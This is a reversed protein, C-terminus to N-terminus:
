VPKDTLVGQTGARGVGLKDLQDKVRRDSGTYVAEAVGSRTTGAFAATVAVNGRTVNVTAGAAISGAGAGGGAAAAAAFKAVLSPSAPLRTVLIPADTRRGDLGIYPLHVAADDLNNTIAIYGSYLLFQSPYVLAPSDSQLQLCAGGTTYSITQQVFDSVGDFPVATLAPINAVTYSVPTDYHKKITVSYHDTRTHESDNLALFSPTVVLKVRAANYINLLGAGQQAVLDISDTKYPKMSVANSQLVAKVDEFALKPCAMSTGDFVAHLTSVALAQAAHSSISSYVKYPFKKQNKTIIVTAKPNALIAESADRSIIETPISLSSTKGRKAHILSTAGADKAVNCRAGSGCDSGVRLLVVKGAAGANVSKCVDDLVNDAAARPNNIFIDLTQPFAFSEANEVSAVGFGGLAGAPSSFLGSTGDNGNASFVIVGSKSVHDVALADVGDPFNPSDDLSMNIIDVGNAAAMFIATTIIDRSTQGECGFVRYAAISAEPAVGTWGNRSAVSLSFSVGCFLDTNVVSRIKYHFGKADLYAKVINRHLSM